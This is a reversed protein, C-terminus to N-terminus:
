SRGQERPESLALRFRGRLGTKEFIHRLHITVTSRQIGLTRAIEAARYGKRVLAAIEKERPTLELHRAKDKQQSEDLIGEEVWVAGSTVSRLCAALNQLGPGRRLIGRAGAQLLRRSESEKLDPGWVVVAVTSGSARLRHLTDIIAPIGFSKDIVVAAPSSTRILDLAIALSGTSSVPRLKEGGELLAEIKGDAARQSDCFLVTQWDVILM